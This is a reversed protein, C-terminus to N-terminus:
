QNSASPRTFRRRRGLQGAPMTRTVSARMSRAPPLNLHHAIEKNTINLDDFKKGKVWESVVSSAAIASGCNHTGIRGAFFVNAGEKLRIDYLKVYDGDRELGKLQIKDTMEKINTVKVKPGKSEVLPKNYTQSKIEVTVKKSAMIEFNSKWPTFFTNIM